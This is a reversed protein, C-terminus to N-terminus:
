VHASGIEQGADERRRQFLAVLLFLRQRRDAGAHFPRLGDVTELDLAAADIRAALAQELLLRDLHQPQVMQRRFLAEFYRRLGNSQHAALIPLAYYRSRMQGYTNSETISHNRFMRIYSYISCPSLNKLDQM